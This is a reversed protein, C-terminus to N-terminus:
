RWTRWSSRGTGFCREESREVSWCALSLVGALGFALAFISIVDGAAPAGAGPGQGWSRSPGVYARTVGHFWLPNGTVRLLLENEGVCSTSPLLVYLPVLPRNPAAFDGHRGLLNGNLYVEINSAVVRPIFLSHGHAAPAHMPFRLLYHVTSGPKLDRGFWPDPLQVAEWSLYQTTFTDEQVVAAEARDITIIEQAGQALVPACALALLAGLLARM